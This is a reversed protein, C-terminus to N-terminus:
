RRINQEEICKELLSKTMLIGEAESFATGEYEVGIFGNYAANYITEIMKPYDITREYGMEGFDFSKASVGKAFPMLMQLGMYKDFSKLCNKGWMQGGEYEICFNSFDPLTGVFSDNVKKIVQILWEADSSYGGHNEVLIHINKAKAYKALQTLGDIGANAVEIKDGNGYLNVRIAHCGLYAAADVWKFHNQVAQFREIDSTDALNGEGDIMILVQQIKNRRATNNLRDLFATDQAKDNFFQNVYEVGSFGMSAAQEIFQFNDMEGSKLAKHFSWQALSLKIDLAEKQPLILDSNTHNRCNLITFITILFLVNRYIKKNFNSM